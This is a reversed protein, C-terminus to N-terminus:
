SNNKRFATVVADILIPHSNLELWINGEYEPISVTKAWTKNDRSIRGDWEKEQVTIALIHQIRETSFNESIADLVGQTNLHPYDYNEDIAKDIAEKCAKNAKNSALLAAREGNQIAYERTQEYLLIDKTNMM